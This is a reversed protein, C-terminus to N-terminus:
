PQPRVAAPIGASPLHFVLRLTLQRVQDFRVKLLQGCTAPVMARLQHRLPACSSVANQIPAGALDRM